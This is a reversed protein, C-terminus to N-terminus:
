FPVDDPVKNGAPLGPAASGGSAAPSDGFDWDEAIVGIKSHEVGDDTKWREQQIRGVIIVRRGKGGKFFQFFNDARRGFIVCDLFTTNEVWEGGRKVKTNHAIGFKVRVSGGDAIIQEPDRTLRGVISLTNLSM